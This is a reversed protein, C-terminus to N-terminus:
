TLMWSIAQQLATVRASCQPKNFTFACGYLRELPRTTTISTDTITARRSVVYASGRWDKQSPYNRSVQRPVRREPWINCAPFKICFAM